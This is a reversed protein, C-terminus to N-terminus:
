LDSIQLRLSLVLVVDIQESPDLAPVVVATARRNAGDTQSYVSLLRSLSYRTSYLLLTDLPYASTISGELLQRKQQRPRLPSRSHVRGRGRERCERTHDSRALHWGM